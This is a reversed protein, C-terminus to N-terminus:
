KKVKVVTATGAEDDLEITVYEGWEFYNSAFNRLKELRKQAEVNAAEKSIGLKQVLEFSLLKEEDAFTDILTDPDKFTVQIKM